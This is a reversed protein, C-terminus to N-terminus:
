TPQECSPIPRNSSRLRHSGGPPQQVDREVVGESADGLRKRDELSESHRRRDEGTGSKGLTRPTEVDGLKRRLHRLVGLVQGCHPPGFQLIENCATNLNAGMREAMWVQGGEVIVLKAPLESLRPLAEFLLEGDTTAEKRVREALLIFPDM